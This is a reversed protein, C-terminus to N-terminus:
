SMVWSLCMVLFRFMWICCSVVMCSFSFVWSDCSVFRLVCSVESMLFLLSLFSKVVILFNWVSCLLSIVGRLVVCDRVLLLKRLLKLGLVFSEVEILCIREFLLKM